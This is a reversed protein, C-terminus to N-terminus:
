RRHVVVRAPRASAAAPKFWAPSAPPYCNMRMAVGKLFGRRAFGSEVADRVKRDYATAGTVWRVLGRYPTVAEVGVKLVKTATNGRKQNLTRTDPPPAADRDPGLAADLRMVEAAINPCRDMTRLDYPNVTARTLVEPIQVKKLNLDEIPTEAADEVTKDRTATVPQPRDAGAAQGALLAAALLGAAGIERARM